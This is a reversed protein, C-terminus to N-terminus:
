LVVRGVAHTPMQKRCRLWIDSSAAMQMPSGLMQRFVKAGTTARPKSSVAGTTARPKSTAKPQRRHCALPQVDCLTACAASTRVGVTVANQAFQAHLDSQATTAFCEPLSGAGLALHSCLFDMPKRNDRYTGRMPVDCNAACSASRDLPM